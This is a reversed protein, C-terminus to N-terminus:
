TSNHGKPTRLRHLLLEGLWGALFPMPVIVVLVVLLQVAEDQIQHM